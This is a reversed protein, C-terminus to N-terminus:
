MRLHGVNEGSFVYTIDKSREVVLFLDTGFWATFYCKVFLLSLTRTNNIPSSMTLNNRSIRFSNAQALLNIM